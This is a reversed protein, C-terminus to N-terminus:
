KNGIKPLMGICEQIMLLVYDPPIRVGACWNQVSRYPIQLRRSLDAMSYGSDAIIDKMTRHAADWIKGINELRDSPIESEPDDGWISSLALDSIYAAKDTYSSVETMCTEYQKVNM